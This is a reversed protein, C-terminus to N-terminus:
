EERSLEVDELIQMFADLLMKRTNDELEEKDLRKAFVDAPKMEAISQTEDYLAATGLPGNAFRIRYKLIIANEHKFNEIITELELLKSPDHNEEVAILEIFDKLMGGNPTYATLKERLREVSGEMRLLNRNLPVPHSQTKLTGNEATILMVRNKNGHESFSLQVPSGSYVFAEGPEQPKHLHGLAYYDFYGPLYRTELGAQNGIQIDRESESVVGGQVYLHGMAIAPIGPFREKCIDATQHFVSAIGKRVAEARDEYGEERNYQRLDADRLFPVCAVVVQVQGERDKIPVLMQSFDDPLSGTVFIDLHKLLERPAELVSPSDHNGGTVIVKCKCIMLERLLEFYIRRSESSPNAVDFVDGSVLLVDVKNGRIFDILWQFFLGQEEHLEAQYLRKGIHLDSTHLIKIM